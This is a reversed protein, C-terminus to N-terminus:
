GRSEDDAGVKVILNSMMDDDEHKNEKVALRIEVRIRIKNSNGPLLSTIRM